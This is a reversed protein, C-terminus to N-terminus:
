CRQLNAQTSVNRVFIQWSINQPTGLPPAAQFIAVSMNPRCPGRGATDIRKQSCFFWTAGMWHTM